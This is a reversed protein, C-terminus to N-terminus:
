KNGISEPCRGSEKRSNWLFRGISVEEFADPMRTEEVCIKMISEWREERQEPDTM